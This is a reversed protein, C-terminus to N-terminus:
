EDNDVGVVAAQEPVYMEALSCANLVHQGRVDNCAMVGVPLSLTRLWAVLHDQDADWEPADDGRWVSEYVECRCDFSSLQERFGALREAAWAEKAFGCYAFNRFGREYLHTAALRGIARMDSQIRPLGLGEFLDNLDITPIRKRKLARALTPTTPRCIIGDWKRQLLWSPPAACLEREDLYTSWTAHTRQYDAVGALIGRGYTTATEVLLAVRPKAQM